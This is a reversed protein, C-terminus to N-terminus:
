SVGLMDSLSFILLLIYSLTYLIMMMMMVKSFKLNAWMMLSRDKALWILEIGTKGVETM